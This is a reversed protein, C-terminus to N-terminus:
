RCHQVGDVGLPDAFLDYLSRLCARVDGQHRLFLATSRDRLALATAPDTLEQVLESLLTPNTRHQHLLPLRGPVHSTALLGGVHRTARRLYWWAPVPIRDIGDLSLITRADADAILDRLDAWSVRRQDGLVLSRVSFGKRRLRQELEERLTTKGSGHPGVLLGRRNHAAFRNLLALWGSEDLRYRLAEIRDARFPNARAPLM